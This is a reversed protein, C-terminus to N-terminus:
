ATVGETEGTETLTDIMDIIGMYTDYANKMGYKELEQYFVVDEQYSLKDTYDLVKTDDIYGINKLSDFALDVTFKVYEDNFELSFGITYKKNEKDFEYLVDGQYRIDGLIINYDFDIKNLNFESVELSGIDEENLFIDVKTENGKTTGILDIVFRSDAVCDGGTTCESDQSLNAHAEFKNDYKYFYFNRFGNEEIDIGVFKTGKTTYINFSIVYDDELVLEEKYSEKVEEITSESIISEIKLFKEDKLFESCMYDYIKIVQKKDLELSNRVVDITIGDIVLEEKKAVLDEESISKKLVDFLKSVYYKYEETSILEVADVVEEESEEVLGYNLYSDNTTLKSYFYNNKEFYTVGHRLKDNNQVYYGNEVLNKEENYGFTFVYDNNVFEEVGKINSDLDLIAEITFNESDIPINTDVFAEAQKHIFDITNDFIAKPKSDELMKYLPLLVFYIFAGFLALTFILKFLFKFIKGAKMRKKLPKFSSTLYLDEETGVKTVKVDTSEEKSHKKVKKDLLLDIEDVTDVEVKKRRGRKKNEVELLEDIEQELESTLDERSVKKKSKKIAEEIMKESEEEDIRDQLEKFKLERTMSLKEEKEVDIKKM